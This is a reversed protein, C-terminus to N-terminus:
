EVDRAQDLGLRFGIAFVMLSFAQAPALNRFDLKSKGERGFARVFWAELEELASWPSALGSTLVPACIKTAEIVHRLADVSLDVTVGLSEALNSLRDDTTLLKDSVAVERLSNRLNADGSPLDIAARVSKVAIAFAAPNTRLAPYIASPPALTPPQIM